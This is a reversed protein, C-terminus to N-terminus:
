IIRQVDLVLPLFRLGLQKEYPEVGAAYVQLSELKAPRRPEGVRGIGGIREADAM